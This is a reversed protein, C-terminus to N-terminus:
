NYTTFTEYPEMEESEKLLSEIEKCPSGIKKKMENAELVHMIEQQLLKIIFARVNNDSLELM